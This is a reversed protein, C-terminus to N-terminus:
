SCVDQLVIVIYLESFYCCTANGLNGHRCRTDRTLHRWALRKHTLILIKTSCVFELSLWRKKTKGERKREGRHLLLWTLLRPSQGKLIISEEHGPVPELKSHEINNM